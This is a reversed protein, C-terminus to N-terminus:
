FYSSYKTSGLFNTTWKLLNWPSYFTTSDIFYNQQIKWINQQGYLLLISYDFWCSYHDIVDELIHFFSSHMKFTTKYFFTSSFINTRKVLNVNIVQYYNSPMPHQFPKCLSWWETFHCTSTKLLTQTSFLWETSACKSVTIKLRLSNSSM